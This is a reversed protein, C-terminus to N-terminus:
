HRRSFSAANFHIWIWRRHSPICNPIFWDSIIETPLVSDLGANVTAAPITSPVSLLQFSGVGGSPVSWNSVNSSVACSAKFGNVATAGCNLFHFRIRAPASRLTFTAQLTRNQYSGGAANLRGGIKVAGQSKHMSLRANNTLGNVALAVDTASSDAKGGMQTSTLPQISFQQDQYEAQGTVSRITLQFSEGYYGFRGVDTTVSSVEPTGGRNVTVEANGTSKVWIASTADVDIVVSNGQSVIAM